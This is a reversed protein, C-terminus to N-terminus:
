KILNLNRLVTKLRDVNADSMKYLPQRVEASPIRGMLELATKAPVPNSEYFLAGFLPFM